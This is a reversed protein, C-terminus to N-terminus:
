GLAFTATETAVPAAADIPPLKYIKETTSVTTNDAIKMSDQEKASEALESCGFMLLLSGITALTIGQIIAHQIIRPKHTSQQM